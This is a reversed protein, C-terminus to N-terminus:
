KYNSWNLFFKIPRMPLPSNKITLYYKEVHKRQRPTLMQLRFWIRGIITRHHRSFAGDVSYDGRCIRNIVSIESSVKRFELKLRIASRYVGGRFQVDYKYQRIYQGFKIALPKIQRTPYAQWKNIGGRQIVSLDLLGIEHDDLHINKLLSKREAFGAKCLDELKLIPFAVNKSMSKLLEFFDRIESYPKRAFREMQSLYIDIPNRIFAAVKYEYGWFQIARELLAQFNDRDDRTWNVITGNEALKQQAIMLGYVHLIAIRSCNLSKFREQILRFVDEETIHGEVTVINLDSCIRMFATKAPIGVYQNVPCQREPDQNMVYHAQLLSMERGMLYIGLQKYVDMVLHTGCGGISYIHTISPTSKM